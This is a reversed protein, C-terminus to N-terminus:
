SDCFGGCRQGDAAFEIAEIVGGALLRGGTDYIAAIQGRATTLQPRALRIHLRGAEDNVIAPVALQNYRLKVYLDGTMRESKALLNIQGAICGIMFVGSRPALEVANEAMNLERVYLPERWAIGLGRRQGATYNWVGDHMGLKAGSGALRVVGTRKGLHKQLFAGKGGPPLFCIDQSEDAAPPECGAAAVMERVDQKTFEALPLMVGALSKQPVLSLFYSQDKRGDASKHLEIGGTGNRLQAYHGTALRDAGLSRSYDRLVGFKIERNCVACPNPTLGHRSSELFYGVVRRRFVERLDAIYLPIGLRLCLAELGPPPVAEHFRGHVAIVRSFSERLLLLAALSDVGGSVAVAVAAM